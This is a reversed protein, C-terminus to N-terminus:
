DDRQRAQQKYAVFQYWAKVRRYCLINEGDTRVNILGNLYKKFRKRALDMSHFDAPDIEPSGPAPSGEEEIFLAALETSFLLPEKSRSVSGVTGLFNARPHGFDKMEGSSVVTVQPHVAKLFEREYDNSGHHPAKLIHADCDSTFQADSILYKESKKNLDGSLLVKVKDYTLQLVVSNGNVTPGIGDFWPFVPQDHGPIAALRPALVQLSVAPDGLDIVPNRTDVAQYVLGPEAVCADRWSTMLNTLNDGAIDGISDHRTLLYTEGDHEITNGLSTEFGSSYKAIGSHIVKKVQILPHQIIPVLGGLHDDDTHSVVLLDIDVPEADDLDLRYKWSLFQYAENGKGGDVLIKKGAPTIIFTSDGQGVDMFYIEMPHNEAFETTDVYGKRHRYTVGTCGAGLGPIAAERVEDGFLLRYRSEEADPVSPYFWTTKSPIIKAAM